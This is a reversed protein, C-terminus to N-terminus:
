HGMRWRVAARGQFKEKALGLDDENKITTGGGNPGEVRMESGFFVVAGSVTIQWKDYLHNRDAEQALLDRAAFSCAFVALVGLARKLNM